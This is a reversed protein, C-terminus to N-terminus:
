YAARRHVCVNVESSIILQWWIYPLFTHTNTSSKHCDNLCLNVTAPAPSPVCPQHFISRWDTQGPYFRLGLFRVAPIFYQALHSINWRHSIRSQRDENDGERHRGREKGKTESRYRSQERMERGEWRRRTDRGRHQWPTVWCWNLWNGCSFSRLVSDSFFFVPLM